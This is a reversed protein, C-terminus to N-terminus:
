IGEPRYGFQKEFFVMNEPSPNARLYDLAAQPAQPQGDDPIGSPNLISDIQKQIADYRGKERAYAAEIAEPVKGEGRRQYKSREVEAEMMTKGATNLRQWYSNLKKFTSEANTTSGGNAYYQAKAELEKIEAGLKQRELNREAGSGMYQLQELAMKKEDIEMDVKSKAIQQRTMEIDAKRQEAGEDYQKSDLKAKKDARESSKLVEEMNATIEKIRKRTEDNQVGSRLKEVAARGEAVSATREAISMDDTDAKSLRGETVNFQRTAETTKAAALEAAKVANVYAVPDETIQVIGAIEEMTIPKTEVLAGSEENYVKAVLKGDVVDVEARNGDPFGSYAEELASKAGAMDGRQMALMAQSANDRLAGQKTSTIHANAKQLAEPGMSGAKQRISDEWSKWDKSTTTKKTQAAQMAEASPPIAGVGHPSAGMAGARRDEGMRFSEPTDTYTDTTVAEPIGSMLTGLEEQDKRDKVKQGFEYGKIGSDVAGQWDVPNIRVDTNWRGM